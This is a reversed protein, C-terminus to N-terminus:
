SATAVTFPVGEKELVAELAEARALITRLALGCKADVGPPAPIVEAPIGADRALDEAWMAQHTTDFTYVRVGGAPAGSM